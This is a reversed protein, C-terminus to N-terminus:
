TTMEFRSHYRKIQNQRKLSKKEEILRPFDFSQYHVKEIPMGMDEFLDSFQSEYAKLERNGRDSTAFMTLNVENQGIDVRMNCSGMHETSISFYVSYTEERDFSSQAQRFYYMNMEQIQGNIMVPISYYDQDLTLQRSLGVEQRVEKVRDIVEEKLGAVKEPFSDDGLDEQGQVLLEETVRSAVNKMLQNLKSEFEFLGDEDLRDLYGDSLERFADLEAQNFFNGLTTLTDKFLYSEGSLQDLSKWQSMNLDMPLAKEMTERPMAKLSTLLERFAKIGEEEQVEHIAKMSEQAQNVQQDQDPRGQDSGGYSGSSTRAEGTMISHDGSRILDVLRGVELDKEYFGTKIQEKIRQGMNAISELIGTADSVNMDIIPQGSKGTGIVKAVEFLNAMTVEMKNDVMMGVAAGKSAEITHLMRFVGLIGRREEESIGEKMLTLLNKAVAESPDSLIESDRQNLYAIINEMPENVVDVGLDVLDGIHSPLLRQTLNQVMIDLEKVAEINEISIPMENRGLIEVARRNYATKELDLDKLIDDVNSFAKEIKDGLDRRVETRLQDYTDAAKALQYSRANENLAQAVSEITKEELSLAAQGIAEPPASSILALQRSVYSIQNLRTSTTAANEVRERSAQYKDEPLNGSDTKSEQNGTVRDIQVKTISVELEELHKRINGVTDNKLDVGNINLSMAAKYTMKYRLVQIDKVAEDLVRKDVEMDLAQIESLSEKADMKMVELSLEKLTVQTSRSLVRTLVHQDAKSLSSRLEQIDTKSLFQSKEVGNVISYSEPKEMKVLRSVALDISEEKSTKENVFTLTELTRNDLPVGKMVLEKVIDKMEENSFRQNGTEDVQFYEDVWDYVQAKIKEFDGQGILDKQVKKNGIFLSKYMEKITSEKDSHLFNMLDEKKMDKIADIKNIFSSIKEFQDLNLPLGAEDFKDSVTRFLDLDLQNIPHKEGYEEILQSIKEESVGIAVQPNEGDTLSIKKDLARSQGVQYLLDITMKEPDLGGSLLSKIESDSFTDLLYDVKAIAEQIHKDMEKSYVLPTQSEMVARKVEMTNVSGSMKSTLDEGAEDLKKISVQASKADAKLVSIEVRDGASIGVKKDLAVEMVKDSNDVSISLSTDSLSVVRGEMIDGQKLEMQDTNLKKNSGTVTVDGIGTITM